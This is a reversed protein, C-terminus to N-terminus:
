LSPVFSYYDLRKDNEKSKQHFSESGYMYNCDPHCFFKSELEPVCSSLTM